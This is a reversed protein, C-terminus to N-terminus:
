SCQGHPGHVSVTHWPCQCTLEHPSVGAGGPRGPGGPGGPYGPPLLKTDHLCCGSGSKLDKTYVM